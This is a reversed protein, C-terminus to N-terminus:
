RRKVLCGLVVGVSIGIAVATGPYEVISKRVSELMREASPRLADVFASVGDHQDNGPGHTPVTFESIRNQHSM